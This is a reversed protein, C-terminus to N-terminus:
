SDTDDIEDEAAILEQQDKKDFVVLVEGDPYMNVCSLLDLIQQEVGEVHPTQQFLAIGIELGHKEDPQIIVSIYQEDSVKLEVRTVNPDDPTHHPLPMDRM